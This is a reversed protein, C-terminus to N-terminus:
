RVTDIPISDGEENSKKWVGCMAVGGTRAVAGRAPSWPRGTSRLPLSWGNASCSDMVYVGCRTLLTSEWSHFRCPFDLPHFRRLGDLSRCCGDLGPELTSGTDVPPRSAGCRLGVAEERWWHLRCHHHKLCCPAICDSTSYTELLCCCGGFSSGLTFGADVLPTTTGCVLEM